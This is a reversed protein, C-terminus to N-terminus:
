KEGYNFMEQGDNCGRVCERLITSSTTIRGICGLSRVSGPTRVMLRIQQRRQEKLVAGLLSVLRWSINEYVTVGVGSQLVVPLTGKKCFRHWERM